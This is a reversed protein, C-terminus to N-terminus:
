MNLFDIRYDRSFKTADKNSKSHNSRYEDEFAVVYVSKCLTNIFQFENNILLKFEEFSLNFFFSRAEKTDEVMQGKENDMNTPVIDLVLQCYVEKSEKTNDM